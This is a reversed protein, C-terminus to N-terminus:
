FQIRGTNNNNNNKKSIKIVYNIKFNENLKMQNRNKM